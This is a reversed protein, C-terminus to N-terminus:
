CRELVIRSVVALWDSLLGAASEFLRRHLRKARRNTATLLAATDRLYAAKADAALDGQEELWDAYVLRPANDEPNALIANLFAAEDSMAPGGPSFSTRWHSNFGVM